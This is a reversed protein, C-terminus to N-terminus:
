WTRKREPSQIHQERQKYYGEESEWMGTAGDPRQKTTSRGPLREEVVSQTSPGEKCDGLMSFKGM